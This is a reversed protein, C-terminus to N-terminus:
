RRPSLGLAPDLQCTELLKPVFETSGLSIIKPVADVFKAYAQTADVIPHEVKKVPRGGRHERMAQDLLSRDRRLFYGGRNLPAPSELLGGLPM